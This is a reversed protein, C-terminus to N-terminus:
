PIRAPKQPRRPAVVGLRVGPVKLMANGPEAVPEAQQQPGFAVAALSIGDLASFGEQGGGAHCGRRYKPYMVM